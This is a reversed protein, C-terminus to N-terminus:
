QSTKMRVRFRSGISIRARTGHHSRATKKKKAKRMKWSRRVDEGPRARATQVSIYLVCPCYHRLVARHWRRGSGSCCCCCCQSGTPYLFVRERVRHLARPLHSCSRPLHARSRARGSFVCFSVFRPPALQSGTINALISILTAHKGRPRETLLNIISLLNSQRRCRM